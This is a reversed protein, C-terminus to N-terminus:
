IYRTSRSCKRFIYRSVTNMVTTSGSIHRSITNYQMTLPTKRQKQRKQEQAQARKDTDRTQTPSGSVLTKGSTKDRSESDFLTWYLLSDIQFLLDVPLYGTRVQIERTTHLHILKSVQCGALKHGLVSPILGVNHPTTTLVQSSMFVDVFWEILHFRASTKLQAIFAGGGKKQSM